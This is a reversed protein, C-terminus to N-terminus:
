NETPELPKVKPAPAPHPPKPPMPPEPVEAMSSGKRLEITGHENNLVIHPGGTGVSGNASSQDDGNNIKLEPFDTEFEGGRSRADLQFSAKDPLYIQLDGKRNEVQISGLKAMRLSIDGNQDEIRVDGSVGDLHVDKSRTTLRFPGSLDNARLDGSDMDLDGALKTFEMETRQSKFSVAGAIKSMKISDFEGDLRVAGGVEDISVDNPRGEVSVDGSVKSIRGSSHELSLVVKGNIDDATVDGRQSTLNIDGDRGLVSIDGRRSSVTVGAKRPLSITLDSAIWHDGAAQTNANLTVVRDNTSLTPKTGNNWKDADAQSGASVRKHVTVHIQNDESTNVTVAGRDSVVHLSGGAPFDQQLQDDYNYTNGFFPIDEGDLDINDRLSGWNVRTAQTAALGFVILVVLLFVGGVGIGPSRLGQRQAQQHEILKIVGWVIILVPWYHAFWTGLTQWPLKGMNALLLLIGLVIMVFPGALSRRPRLPPPAIPTQSAM